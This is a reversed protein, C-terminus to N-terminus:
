DAVELFHVFGTLNLVEKIEDNPHMLVMRGDKEDLVQYAALMERLGASTTYELESMDIFIEMVDDLDEEVTESFMSANSSDMQGKITVTLKEDEKSKTITLM